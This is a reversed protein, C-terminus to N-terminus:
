FDMLIVCKRCIENFRTRKRCIAMLIYFMPANGDFDMPKVNERRMEIYSNM